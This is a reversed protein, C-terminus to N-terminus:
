FPSSTKTADMMRSNGEISVLTCGYARKQMFLLSGVFFHTFRSVILYWKRFLSVVNRVNLAKFPLLLQLVKPWSLGKSRSYMAFYYLINM